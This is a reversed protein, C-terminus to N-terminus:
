GREGALLADAEAKLEATRATIRRDEAERDLRAIEPDGEFDDEATREAHEVVSEFDTTFRRLADLAVRAEAPSLEGTATGFDLWVRTERGYAQPKDNVVVTRAALFPLQANESDTHASDINRLATEVPASTHWDPSTPATHDNVCWPPCGWRAMWEPGRLEATVPYTGLLRARADSAIQEALEPTYRDPFVAQMATTIADPLADLVRHLDLRTSTETSTTPLKSM